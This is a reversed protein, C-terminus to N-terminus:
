GGCVSPSLVYDVFARHLKSTTPGTQGDAIQAQGVHTVAAVHTTTGVLMVEDASLLAETDFPEERVTIGQSGALDIVIARTVGPLIAGDTPPTWLKGNRVVMVSTSTGETVRNARHLIAESAGARLARNRALVNPLLMLSKIWCHAWREDPHLITRVQRPTASPDLPKDPYAIAMVTPLVDVPFAHDRPAAGRTVHWYVKADLLNNAKVLEDSVGPLDHARPTAPLEIARMSNALREHHMQMALPKGHYYRVVEYVGDAFLGGRDEISLAAEVRPVFQGNLYIVPSPM